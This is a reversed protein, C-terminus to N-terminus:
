PASKVIFTLPGTRTQPVRRPVATRLGQETPTLINWATQNIGTAGSATGSYFARYWPVDASNASFGFEAGCHISQSSTTPNAACVPLNTYGGGRVYQDIKHGFEHGGLLNTMVYGSRCWIGNGDAALGSALGSFSTTTDGNAAKSSYIWTSDYQDQTGLWTAVLIPNPSYQGPYSPLFEAFVTSPLLVDLVRITVDVAGMGNSWDKIQAAMQAAANIGSAIMEPTETVITAGAIYQTTTPIVALATYRRM